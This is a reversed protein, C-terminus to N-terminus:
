SASAPTISRLGHRKGGIELEPLEMVDVDCPSSALIRPTSHIPSTPNATPHYEATLSSAVRSNVTFLLSTFSLAKTSYVICCIMAVLVQIEAESTETGTM